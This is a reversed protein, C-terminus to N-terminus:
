FRKMGMCQRKLAIVQLTWLNLYHVSMKEDITM